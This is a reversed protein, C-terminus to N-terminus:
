NSDTPSTIDTLIRSMKKFTKSFKKLDKAMKNIKKMGRSVVKCKYKGNKSTAMVTEDSGMKQLKGEIWVYKPEESTEEEMMCIFMKSNKVGETKTIKKNKKAVPQENMIDKFSKPLAKPERTNQKYELEVIRIVKDENNEDKVSCKVRSRDYSKSFQEIELYNKTEDFIEVDNIFWKFKKNELPKNNNCFIKVSDGDELSKTEVKPKGKIIIEIYDSVKGTRFADNHASCKVRQGTSPRFRLTSVTKFMNTDEMRKVHETVDSVIRRGEGDWWQIEAPPRGGQSECQLEVEEGEQVEMMEEEMAQMIYPQGPESNVTLTVPASAIPPVGHGGSVQCQYQGEDMPLVPDINLDCVGHRDGAVQYRQVGDLLLGNRTWHCEGVMNGVMCSLRAHQGATVTTNQPTSVFYQKAPGGFVTNQTELLTIFLITVQFVHTLLKTM